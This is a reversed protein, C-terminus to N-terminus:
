VKKIQKFGLSKAKALAQKASKAQVLGQPKNNMLVQYTGMKTAGLNRKLSALSLASSM